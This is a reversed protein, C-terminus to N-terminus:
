EIDEMIMNKMHETMIKYDVDTMRPRIKNYLTDNDFM